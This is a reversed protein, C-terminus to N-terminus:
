SPSTTRFSLIAYAAGVSFIVATLKGLLTWPRDDRKTEDYYVVRNDPDNIQTVTETVQPGRHITTQTRKYRKLRIPRNGITM